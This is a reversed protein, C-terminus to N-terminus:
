GGSPAALDISESFLCLVSPAVKSIKPKVILFGIWEMEHWQTGHPNEYLLCKLYEEAVCAM